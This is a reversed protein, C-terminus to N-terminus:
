LKSNIWEMARAGLMVAGNGFEEGNGFGEGNDSDLSTFGIVKDDEDLVPGGSNGWVVDADFELFHQGLLESLIGNGYYGDSRTLQGPSEWMQFRKDGPYGILRIPAGTVLDDVTITRLEFQEVIDGIHEGNENPSVTLVSYDYSPQAGGLIYYGDPIDIREIAFDGFPKKEGNLGPAIKVGVSTDASVHACTLVKDKGVVFGTAEPVGDGDVPINVISQYIPQTTDTVQFRQNNITNLPNIANSNQTVCPRNGKISAYSASINTSVGLVSLTTITMLKILKKTKM